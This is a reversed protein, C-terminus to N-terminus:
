DLLWFRLSEVKLRVLRTGRVTLGVTRGHVKSNLIDPTEMLLGEKEKKGGFREPDPPNAGGNRMIVFGHISPTVNEKKRCRQGYM